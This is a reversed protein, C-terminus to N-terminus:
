VLEYGKIEDPMEKGIESLADELALSDIENGGKFYEYDLSQVFQKYTNLDQQIEGIERDRKPKFLIYIKDFPNRYCNFYGGVFNPIDDLDVTFIKNQHCYFGNDIKKPCHKLSTLNNKSCSFIGEVTHPANELTTLGCNDCYFNGEISGFKLPLKDDKFRKNELYVSHKVDVTGDDHIVYNRIGFKMCLYIIDEEEQDTISEFTKYKKLYKM